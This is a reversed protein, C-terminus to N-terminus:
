STLRRSLCAPCNCTKYTSIKHALGCIVGDKEDFRSEIENMYTLDNANYRRFVSYAIHDALQIIRSAKSNVFLPVEVISKEYSGWRNGTRKIEHTLSQLGSEYSTEDIVLIGRQQKKDPSEIHQLYRDFRSTVEEYAHIVPDEDPPLSAKHVACAFIRIGGHAADLTKLVRVILNVRESKSKFSSWPMDHGRFIEAAHLEVSQPQDANLEIAIKELEYTLWRVSTEPVSVGGLVFYDEKPNDPSGSDDLYLIHM